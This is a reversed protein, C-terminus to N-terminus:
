QLIKLRRELARRGTGSPHESFTSPRSRKGDPYVRVITFGTVYVCGNEVASSVVREEYTGDIDYHRTIEDLRQTDRISFRFDRGLKWQDQGPWHSFTSERVVPIELALVLGRHRERLIKSCRSLADIAGVTISPSSELTYRNKSAAYEMHWAVFASFVCALLHAEEM